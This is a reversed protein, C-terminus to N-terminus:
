CYTSLFFTTQPLWYALRPSLVTVLARPTFRLSFGDRANLVSPNFLVIDAMAIVYGLTWLAKTANGEASSILAGLYAGAAAGFISRISRFGLWLTGRVMAALDSASRLLRVEDVLFAALAPLLAVRAGTILMREAVLTPDGLRCFKRGSSRLLSKVLKGATRAPLYKVCAAELACLTATVSLSRTANTVCKKPFDELSKINNGDLSWTADIIAAYATTVLMTPSFRTMPRNYDELYDKQGNAHKLARHSTTVLALGFLPVRFAAAQLSAAASPLTSGADM